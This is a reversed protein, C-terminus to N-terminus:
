SFAHVRLEGRTPREVMHSLRMNTSKGSGYHGTLFCFKGKPIHFSVDKLAPEPRSYQKTVHLFKIM